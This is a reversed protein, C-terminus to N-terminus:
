FKYKPQLIVVPPVIVYVRHRRTRLVLQLLPDLLHVGERHVEVLPWLTEAERNDTPLSSM